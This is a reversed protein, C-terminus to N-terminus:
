DKLIMGARKERNYHAGLAGRGGGLEGGAGQSTNLLGRGESGVAWWAKKDGQTLSPTDTQAGTYLCQRSGALLVTSLQVDRHQSRTGLDEPARRSGSCEM